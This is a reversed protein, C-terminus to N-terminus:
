RRPPALRTMVDLLERRAIALQETARAEHQIEEASPLQGKALTEAVRKSAHLYAEYAATYRSRAAELASPAM